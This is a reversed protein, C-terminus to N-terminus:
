ECKLGERLGRWSEWHGRLSELKLLRQWTTRERLCTPAAPPIEREVGRLCYLLASDTLYKLVIIFGVVDKKKKNGGLVSLQLCRSICGSCFAGVMVGLM